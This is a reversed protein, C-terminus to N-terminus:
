VSWKFNHLDFAGLLGKGQQADNLLKLEKSFHGGAM